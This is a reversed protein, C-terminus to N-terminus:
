SPTPSPPHACIDDRLVNSEIATSVVRRQGAAVRVETGGTVRVQFFLTVLRSARTSDCASGSAHFWDRMNPVDVYPLWSAGLFDARHSVRYETPRTGRATHTLLVTLESTSVTHAAKNITFSTLVPPEPSQEHSWATRAGALGSCVLGAIIVILLRMVIGDTNGSGRPAHATLWREDDRARPEEGIQM